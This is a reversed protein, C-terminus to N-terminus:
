GFVPCFEARKPAVCVERCSASDARCILATNPKHNINFEAVHSSEPVPLFHLLWFATLELFRFIRGKPSTGMEQPMAMSGDRKLGYFGEINYLLTAM